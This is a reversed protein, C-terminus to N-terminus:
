CNAWPLRFLMQLMLMLIVRLNDGPPRDSSDPIGSPTTHVIRANVSVGEDFQGGFVRGEETITISYEWLPSDLFYKARLSPREM